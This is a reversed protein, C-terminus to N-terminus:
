KRKKANATKTYVNAISMLLSYGCRFTEPITLVIKEIMRM